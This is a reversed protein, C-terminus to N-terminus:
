LKEMNAPDQACIGCVESGLMSPRGCDCAPVGPLAKFEPTMRFLRAMFAAHQDYHDACMWLREWRISAPAGCPVDLHRDYQCFHSM